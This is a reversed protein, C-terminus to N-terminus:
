PLWYSDILLDFTRSKYLEIEGQLDVNDFLDKTLLLIAAKLDGPANAYWKNPSGSVFAYGAWVDVWVSGADGRSSPWAVGYTPRIINLDSDLAYDSTSLTQTAGASDIYKFDAIAIVPRPEARFYSPMVHSSLRWQQRAIARHTRNEVHKRAATVCLAMRLDFEDSEVNCHAKAEKLTVPEVTAETLLRKPM